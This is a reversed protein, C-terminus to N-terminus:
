FLFALIMIAFLSLQTRSDSGNTKKDYCVLDLIEGTQDYDEWYSGNAIRKKVDEIGEPTQVDAATVDICTHNVYDPNYDMKSECYCCVETDFETGKGKCDAFGKVDQTQECPSLSLAFAVILCLIYFKM